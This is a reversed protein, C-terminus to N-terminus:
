KKVEWRRKTKSFVSVELLYRIGAKKRISDFDDKLNGCDIEGNNGIYSYEIENESFAVVLSGREGCWQLAFLGDPEVVIEPSELGGCNDNLFSIMRDLSKLDYDM